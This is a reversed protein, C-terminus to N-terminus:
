KSNVEAGENVAEVGAPMVPQITQGPQSCVYKIENTWWEESDPIGNDNFDVPAFSSDVGDDLLFANLITREANAMFVAGKAPNGEEFIAYLTGTGVASGPQANTGYYDDEANAFYLDPAKFPDRWFVSMKNLRLVDLKNGVSETNSYGLAGWLASGIDLKWTSM